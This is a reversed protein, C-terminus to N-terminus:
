FSIFIGPPLGPIEKLHLIKAVVRKNEINQLCYGGAVM